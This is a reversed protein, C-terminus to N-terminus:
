SLILNIINIDAHFWQRRSGGVFGGVIVMTVVVRMVAVGIAFVLTM